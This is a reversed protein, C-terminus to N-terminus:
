SGVARLINKQKRQVAALIKEDLTDAAVLYKIRCIETQTVRFIRGEAQENTSPVWDYEGFILTSAATLTLGTSAAKLSAVFVRAKGSQFEAVAEDREEPPTLGNIGVATIDECWLADLIGDYMVRHHVFVVVQSVEDLTEITHTILSNLKLEALRRRATAIHETDLPAGGEVASLIADADFEDGLAIREPRPIEVYVNQRTIGPLQGLVEEKTRRVLFSDLAIQRLEDLNKSRAYQPGWPTMEEVCYRDRFYQWSGFDNPNCRSFTTYAECARGNPLPTGTLLLRYKCRSWLAVLVIRSTQSKPNKCYHAEDVILMDFKMDDLQEQVGIQLCLNFSLIIVNAKRDLTQDSSTVSQITELFSWREFERKWTGRMSAPCIVLISKAEVMSAVGIAQPTKGAGPPDALMAAHNGDRRMHRTLREIGQQQYSYLASANRMATGVILEICRAMISSVAYNQIGLNTDGHCWRQCSYFDRFCGHSFYFKGCWSLVNVGIPSWPRNRPEVPRQSNRWFGLMHDIEHREVEAYAFVGNTSMRHM